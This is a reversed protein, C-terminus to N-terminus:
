LAKQALHIARVLTDAREGLFHKRMFRFGKEVVYGEEVHRCYDFSIGTPSAKAQSELWGILREFEKLRNIEAEYEEVTWDTTWNKM